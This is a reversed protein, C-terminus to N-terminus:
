KDFGNVGVGAFAIECLYASKFQHYTHNNKTRRKMQNM